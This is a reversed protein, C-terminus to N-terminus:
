NTLHPREVDGGELNALLNDIRTGDEIVRPEDARDHRHGLGERLHHYQADFQADMKRMSDMHATHLIKARAESKASTYTAYIIAATLVIAAATATINFIDTTSM